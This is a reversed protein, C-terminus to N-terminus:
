TSSAESGGKAIVRAVLARLAVLAPSSKGMNAYVVLGLVYWAGLPDGALLENFLPQTLVDRVLGSAGPKTDPHYVEIAGSFLLLRRLLAQEELTLAALVRTLAALMEQMSAMDLAPPGSADKGATVLHVLSSADARAVLDGLAPLFGKLLLLLADMGDVAGAVRVQFRLGGYEVETIPRAM